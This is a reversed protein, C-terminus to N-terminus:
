TGRIWFRKSCETSSSGGNQISAHVNGRNDSRMATDGNSQPQTKVSKMRQYVSELASCVFEINSEEHHIPHDKLWQLLQENTPPLSRACPASEENTQNGYHQECAANKKTENGEKRHREVMEMSAFLPERLAVNLGVTTVAQNAGVGQPCSQDVSEM